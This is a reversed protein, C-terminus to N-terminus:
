ERTSETKKTRAREGMKYGKQYAILCSRTPFQATENEDARKKGMLGDLFGKDSFWEALDFRRM